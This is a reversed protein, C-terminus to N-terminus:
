MEKKSQGEYDKRFFGEDNSGLKGSYVITLMWVDGKSMASSSGKDFDVNLFESEADLSFLAYNARPEDEKTRNGLKVSSVEKIQLDKSHLVVRSTDEQIQIQIKVTGQFVGVQIDAKLDIEYSLPLSTNPLRLFPKNVRLNKTSNGLKLSANNSKQPKGCVNLPVLLLLTTIFGLTTFM